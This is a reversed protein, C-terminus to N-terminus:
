PHYLLIFALEVRKRVLHQPSHQSGAWAKCALLCSSFGALARYLSSMSFDPWALATHDRGDIVFRVRSLAWLVIKDVAPRCHDAPATTATALKQRWVIKQDDFELWFADESLRQRL